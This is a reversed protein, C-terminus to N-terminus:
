KIYHKYVVYKKGGMANSIFYTSHSDVLNPSAQNEQYRKIIRPFVRLKKPVVGM